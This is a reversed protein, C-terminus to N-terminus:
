KELVWINRYYVPNGHEQLYLPGPTDTETNIGSSPTTHKLSVHDQVLVGNHRVTIFANTSKKGDADFRAATFDIDYTQWQLPPYCMNVLPAYQQYIGGCENDLGKLGFSDLVQVEYRDQNYVGSNARGQGRASPKLPLYFELHLTYDKFKKVSRGGCALWGRDDMKTKTWQDASKGDFLVVAGAPAALGETPSHREIRTLTFTAANYQTPGVQMLKLTQGKLEGNWAAGKFVVSDGERNGDLDTKNTKDWSEGPLGGNFFVLHFKGSGLNIINAGIHEGRFEGQQLYEQGAAEVTLYVQPPPTKAAPTDAALLGGCTLVSLFLTPTTM